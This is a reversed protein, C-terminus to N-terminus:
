DPRWGGLYREILEPLGDPLAVGPSTEVSDLAAAISEESGLTEVLVDWHLSAVRNVHRTTLEQSISETSAGSLLAAVVGVDTPPVYAPEGEGSRRKLAFLVRVLDPENALDESPTARVQDRWAAEM